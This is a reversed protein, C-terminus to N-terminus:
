CGGACMALIQSSVHVFQLVNLGNMNIVSTNMMEMLATLSHTVCIKKHYVSPLNIVNSSIHVPPGIVSSRMLEELANGSVMVCMDGHSAIIAQVNSINAKVILKLIYCMAIMIMM